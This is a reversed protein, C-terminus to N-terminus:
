LHRSSHCSLIASARGENLIQGEVNSRSHYAKDEKKCRCNIAIGRDVTLMLYILDTKLATFWSLVFM